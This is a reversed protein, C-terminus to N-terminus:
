NFFKKRVNGFEPNMTLNYLICFALFFLWIFFHSDGFDVLELFNFVSKLTGVTTDVIKKCRFKIRHLLHMDIHKENFFFM